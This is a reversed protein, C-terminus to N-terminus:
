FSKSRIEMFRSLSFSILLSFNRLHFLEFWPFNSFYWLFFPLFQKFFVSINESSNWLHFNTNSNSVVPWFENTRLLLISFVLSSSNFSVHFLNKEFASHNVRSIVSVDFLNSKWSSGSCIFSYMCEQVVKSTLKM